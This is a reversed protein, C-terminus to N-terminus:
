LRAIDTAVAQGAGRGGDARHFVPEGGGTRCVRAQARGAVQHQAKVMVVDRDRPGPVMM